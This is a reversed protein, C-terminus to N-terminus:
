FVGSNKYKTKKWSFRRRSGGVGTPEFGTGVMMKVDHDSLM